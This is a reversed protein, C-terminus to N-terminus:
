TRGKEMAAVGGTVGARSVLEGLATKLTAYDVEAAPARAILIIDWGPGIPLSRAAERLRRKVRNRTVAKGLRKGVSLGYRSREQGTPLGKLVLYRNAWSRGREYVIAFEKAKSLRGERGM